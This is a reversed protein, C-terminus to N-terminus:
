RKAPEPATVPAPKLLAEQQLIRRDNAAVADKGTFVGGMYALGLVGGIFLLFIAGLIILATVVSDKEVIPEM